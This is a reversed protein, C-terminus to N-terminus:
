CYFSVARKIWGHLFVLQSTDQDVIGSLFAVRAGVLANNTLRWPTALLVTMTRPGVIGDVEVGLVAQLLKVATVTGSLVAIDVLHAKVDDLVVWDFPRVYRQRYILRAEDVTLAQVERASAPRGLHRWDGLEAATIGYNTPGGRDAPHDSYGGERALVNDLLADTTM